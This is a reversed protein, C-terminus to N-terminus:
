SSGSEMLTFLTGFDPVFLCRVALFAPDGLQDSLIGVLSQYGGPGEGCSCGDILDSVIMEELDRDLIQNLIVAHIGGDEKEARTTSSTTM